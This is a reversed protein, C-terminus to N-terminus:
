LPVGAKRLESQWASVASECITQLNGLSNGDKDIVSASVQLGVDGTSLLTGGPHLPFAIRVQGKATTAVLTTHPEGDIKPDLKSKSRRRLEGGHKDRNWLDHVIAVDRNSNILQNGTFPVKNKTCWEELYDKICAINALLTSVRNAATARDTGKTFDLEIGFKDGDRVMQPRIAAPDEPLRMEGLARYIQEIKQQLTMLEDAGGRSLTDLRETRFFSM